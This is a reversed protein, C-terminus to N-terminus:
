YTGTAVLTLAGTYKGGPTTNSINALFTMTYDTNGSSKPASAVTEGSNFRWKDSITYPRTTGYTGTSGDGAVGFGFGVPNSVPNAGIGASSNLVFNVGFQETGASSATDTTLPNLAHGANTPPTGVISVAYGYATYNKVHFGTTATSKVTTSLAGLDINSVDVTFTLGPQNTTNFGAGLQYGGQAGNSTSNGVFNDGLTSGGDDINPAFSFGGLPGNSASGYDGTGGIEGENISYHPSIMTQDSSVANAVGALGLAALVGIILQQRWRKM